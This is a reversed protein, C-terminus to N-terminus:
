KNKDKYAISAKRILGLLAGSRDLVEDCVEAVGTPNKKYLKILRDFIKEPSAIIRESKNLQDSIVLELDTELQNSADFLANGYGKGPVLKWKEIFEQKTMIKPRNYTTIGVAFDM